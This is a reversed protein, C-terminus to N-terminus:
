PWDGWNKCNHFISVQDFISFRSLKLIKFNKSKLFEIVTKNNIPLCHKNSSDSRDIFINEYNFKKNIKKLFLKRLFIIIWKPINSHSKFITGNFYNPHTVAYISSAQVHRSKNSDVVKKTNIGIVIMIALTPALVTCLILLSIIAFNNPNKKSLGGMGSGKTIRKSGKKFIGRNRISQNNKHSRKLDELEPVGLFGM